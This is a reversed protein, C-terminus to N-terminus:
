AGMGWLAIAGALTLVGCSRLVLRPVRRRFIQGCLILGAGIAVLMALHDPSTVLHAPGAEHLAHGPHALLAAPTLLLATVIANVM